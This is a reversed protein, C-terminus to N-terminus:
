VPPPEGSAHANRGAAQAAAERMTALRPEAGWFLRYAAAAQHVLLGLGDAAPIGATRARRVLETSGPAYVLDLVAACGAVAARDLASSAVVSGRGDLGTATANVVIESGAVAEDRDPWAVTDVSAGWGRAAEAVEAARAETRNCVTLGAPAARGLAWVAARAAGGAGLVLCRAGSATVGLDALAATVAAADTNHAHVMGEFVLTNAAGIQEAEESAADCAEFAAVKHPITVNLGRAGAALMGALFLDFREPAVDFALYVANRGEHRLGANHIHPSLSHGVPHGVVGLLQTAADPFTV